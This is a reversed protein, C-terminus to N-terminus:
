FCLEPYSANVGNIIEQLTLSVWKTGEESTPDTSLSTINRRKFAQEDKKAKRLQLSMAIWQQWQMSADKSQYKFKRLRGEPAELTQM